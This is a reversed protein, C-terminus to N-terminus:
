PVFEGGGPLAYVLAGSGDRKAIPFGRKTLARHRVEGDDLQIPERMIKVPYKGKYHPVTGHACETAGFGVRAFAGDVVSM